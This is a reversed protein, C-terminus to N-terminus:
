QQFFLLNSDSQYPLRHEKLLVNVNRRHAAFTPILATCLLHGKLHPRLALFCGYLIDNASIDVPAELGPCFHRLWTQACHRQQGTVSLASSPAVHSQSLASMLLVSADMNNGIPSNCRRELASVLERCSGLSQLLCIMSTFHHGNADSTCHTHGAPQSDYVGDDDDDNDVAMQMDTHRDRSILAPETTQNESYVSSPTKPVVGWLADHHTDCPDSKAPSQLLTTRTTLSNDAQTASAQFIHESSDRTAPADYHPVMTNQHNSGRAAPVHPTRTFLSNKAQTAPAQFVHESSDRRAPAHYHPATTYHHNWDRTVTANHNRANEDLTDTHYRLHSTRLDLPANNNRHTNLKAQSHWQQLSSPRHHYYQTTPTSTPPLTPPAQPEPLDDDSYTSPWDHSDSSKFTKEVLECLKEFLPDVIDDALQLMLMAFQELWDICMELMCRFACVFAVPCCWEGCLCARPEGINVASPLPTIESPLPFGQERGEGGM